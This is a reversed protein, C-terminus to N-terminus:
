VPYATILIGDRATRVVYTPTPVRPAATLGVDRGRMTVFRECRGDATETPTVLKAEDLLEYIDEEEYFLGADDAVDPGGPYHRDFIHGIRDASPIINQKCKPEDEPAKCPPLGPVCPVPKDKGDQKLLGTVGEGLM